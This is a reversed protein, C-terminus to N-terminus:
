FDKNTFLREYESVISKWSYRRKVIKMAKDFYEEKTADSFNDVKNILSSLSGSKKNWYLGSDNAVERNFGIDYLLNLKTLGLAELLSPNTGGVSHGHIYAFAKERIYKM